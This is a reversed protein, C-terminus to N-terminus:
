PTAEHLSSNLVDIATQIKQDTIFPNNKYIEATTNLIISLPKSMTCNGGIYPFMINTIHDQVELFNLGNSLNFAAQMKVQPPECIREGTAISIGSNYYNVLLDLGFNTICSYSTAKTSQTVLGCRHKLSAIRLAGDMKRAETTAEEKTVYRKNGFLALNKSKNIDASDRGSVNCNLENDVYCPKGAADTTIQTPEVTLRKDDPQSFVIVYMFM